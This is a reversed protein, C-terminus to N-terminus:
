EVDHITRQEWEEHWENTQNTKGNKERWTNIFLLLVIISIDIGLSNSTKGRVVCKVM